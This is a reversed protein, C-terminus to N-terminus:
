LASPVPGLNHIIEAPCETILAILADSAREDFVFRHAQLVRRKIQELYGKRFLATPDDTHPQYRLLYDALLEM